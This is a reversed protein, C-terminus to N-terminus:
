LEPNLTQSTGARFVPAEFHVFPLPVFETFGVGVGGSIPQSTSFQRGGDL